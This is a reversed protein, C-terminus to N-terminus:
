KWLLIAIITKADEIKKNKIMKLVEKQSFIKVKKIMEGEELNQKGKELKEAKFVIMYERLYGPSFYFQCIRKLRKALFGTEEKLERKAGIEPKENKKLFGAPIEWMEKKAALRYNKILVIKDKRILPLIGVSRPLHLCAIEKEIKKKGIKAEVKKLDIIKGKYLFKEKIKM